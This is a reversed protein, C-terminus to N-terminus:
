VSAREAFFETAWRLVTADAGRRGAEDIHWSTIEWCILALGRYDCTRCRRYGVRDDLRCPHGNPCVGQDADLLSLTAMDGDSLRM